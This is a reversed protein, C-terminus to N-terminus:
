KKIQKKILLQILGKLSYGNEKCYEKLQLYVEKDIQIMSYDSKNKRM